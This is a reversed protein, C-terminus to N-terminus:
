NIERKNPDRDGLLNLAKRREEKAERVRIDLIKDRCKTYSNFALLAIRDIKLELNLLQWALDSNRIEEELEERIADKLLFVFSVAQEPSFDQVARIKIINDLSINLKRDDMNGTLEDYIYRTEEAITYGTPNLFKDKKGLYQRACEAPYTKM